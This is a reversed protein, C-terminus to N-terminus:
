VTSLNSIVKLANAKCSKQLDPFLEGKATMGQTFVMSIHNAKRKACPRVVRGQNERSQEHQVEGELAM